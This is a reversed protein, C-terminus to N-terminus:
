AVDFCHLFSNFLCSPFNNRTGRWDFGMSENPQGLEFGCITWLSFDKDRFLYPGQDVFLFSYVMNATAHFLAISNM